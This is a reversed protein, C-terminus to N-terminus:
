QWTDVISDAAGGDHQAPSKRDDLLSLSALRICDSSINALWRRGAAALLTANM